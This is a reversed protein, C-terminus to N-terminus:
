PLPKKNSGGSGPKRDLCERAELKRKTNFVTARSVGMIESVAMQAQLLDAVRQRKAEMNTVPHGPPTLQVKNSLQCNSSESSLLLVM